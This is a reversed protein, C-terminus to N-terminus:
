EVTFDVDRSATAGARRDVVVVRLDYYGPDFGELSMGNSQPLPVGDKQHFTVPQPKSAAILKGGFRIQAQLVVDSRGQEDPSVNYVYVQFYLSEGRKFHRRGQVDHLTEEAGTGRAAGEGGTPPSGTGSSETSSSLFVSSLTLKHDALDPIEVKESAGGLPARSADLVVLRVDRPGPTVPERQQLELGSQAAREQQAPTLDLTVHRTFPPGTLAGSGDFVGGVVDLDARRRGEAERWPLDAVELRARVIAQPGAPPLDLYDVTLHVPIGRTPVPAGLAARAEADTLAVPLRAVEGPKPAPKRDDPAFYGARTRVTLGPRGSVRVEIRRFHGDHKTNTPEYAMLYYAENDALMRVLGPTPENTGHVLFGGTDGALSSLTEQFLHASARDVRQQLGPPVAAGAVSADGGTMALGLSDLAYVVTGSRTAADVVSRLSRTQDNRTGTGLLFGDSVVLCIKRGPLESVSRIVDEITHLTAGSFRMAESLIGEAQRRAEREAAREKADQAMAAAGAAGSSSGAGPGEVAARPSNGDYVSGPEAILTRAALRLANPDGRLVMEAQAATMQSGRAPAVFADRSKLGEIAEELWRRDSSLERVGGPSGIPILAVRDDPQVTEAVFRRLAPKVYELNNPAIHLDDVVIVVFRGPATGSPAPAGETAPRERALGGAAPKEAPGVFLFNTLHQPEGDELVEFDAEKLDRVPRGQADTVVADLRVIEAKAGPETEQGTFVAAPTFLGVAVIISILGSRM